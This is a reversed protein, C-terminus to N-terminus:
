VNDQHEKRPKSQNYRKNQQVLTALQAKLEEFEAKSVTEQSAETEVVPVAQPTTQAQNTIEHYEHERLPLAMGFADTAKIYFKTQDLVDFLYATTNSSMMPYSAAGMKGQVFGILVPSSFTNANIATGINNSPMNYNNGYNGSYGTMPQYNNNFGSM